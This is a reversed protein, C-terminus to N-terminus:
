KSEFFLSYLIFETQVYLSPCVGKLLARKCQERAEKTISTKYKVHGDKWCVPHASKESAKIGGYANTGLKLINGTKWM